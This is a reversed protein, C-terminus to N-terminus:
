IRRLLADGGGSQGPRDLPAQRAQRPGAAADRDRIAGVEKRQRRWRCMCGYAPVSAGAYTGRRIVASVLGLCQIRTRAIRSHACEVTAALM